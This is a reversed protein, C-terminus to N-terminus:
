GELDKVWRYLNRGVSQETLGTLEATEKNTLGYTKRLYACLEPCDTRDITNKAARMRKARRVMPDDRDVLDNVNRPM